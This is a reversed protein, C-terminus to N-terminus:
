GALLFFKCLEVDGIKWVFEFGPFHHSLGGRFDPSSCLIGAEDFDRTSKM